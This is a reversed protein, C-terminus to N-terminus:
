CYIFMPANKSRTSDNEVEAVLKELGSRMAKCSPMVFIIDTSYIEAFFKFINM